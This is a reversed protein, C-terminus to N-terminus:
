IDLWEILYLFCHMQLLSCLVNFAKTELLLMAKTM